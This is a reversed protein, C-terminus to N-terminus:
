WRKPRPLRWQAVGEFPYGAEGLERNFRDSRDPDGQDIVPVPWAGEKGGGVDGELDILCYSSSPGQRTSWPMSAASPRSTREAAANPHTSGGPAPTSLMDAVGAGIMDGEDAHV